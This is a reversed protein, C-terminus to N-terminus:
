EGRELVEILKDITQRAKKANIIPTDKDFLRMLYGIADKRHAGVQQDFPWCDVVDWPQVAMNIYHDGGVQHKRAASKGERAMEEMGGSMGIGRKPEQWINNLANWEQATATPM